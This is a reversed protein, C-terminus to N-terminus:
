RGATLDPRLSQQSYGAAKQMEESQRREEIIQANMAAQALAHLEIASTRVSSQTVTAFLKEISSTFIECRFKGRSIAVYFLEKSMEDASVIVNSVTKGQSAHATSAYGYSFQKFHAPMIRGDRLKKNGASDISLVDVWEGNTFKLDARRNAQIFLREGSCVEIAEKQFVEYAKAHRSTIRVETGNELRGIAANNEFRVLDVAANKPIDKTAKHFVLTQGVHLKSVDKKQATSCNQPSYRECMQGDVLQSSQKALRRVEHTVRDIEEHKPCILLTDAGAKLYAQAVAAPRDLYDVEKFADMALLREFGSIPDDRFAKVAERYEKTQQRLVEKLSRTQLSSHKELVLLADGADVPQIQSTDGSFIIRADAGKALRILQAMPESGVMAAEDILLVTGKLFAQAEPNDLLARITMADEYGVKKLEGVASHTPAVATFGRQNHALQHRLEGLLQTKGVGAAGQISFAFDRNELASHLIEMQADNLPCTLPKLAGLPAYANVGSDIAAIMQKERELSEQTALLRGHRFVKGSAIQVDLATKVHELALKGRGHRLAETLITIDKSVSVHAFTHDIAFQVSRSAEYWLDHEPANMNGQARSSVENLEEKGEPTLRELQDCRVEATSMETLKEPREDAVLVAVENDTPLRGVEKTFKQVSEDRVKSGQSFRDIIDQSVGVIEFGMDRGRKPARNVIEYGLAICQRALSNRYVESLYARSKYIDTAQLAKWREEVEDFTMNGAVCHDHLQPDLRRSSDHSYRAVVINGTVRDENRNFSRVRTAAIRELETLAETVARRHAEILREDGGLIAMISVSKPASFTFDYLNRAKTIIKGNADLRNASQRIRLWEGNAPNFGQRMLEFDEHSLEGSLGLRQAGKGFWHGVVKENESYYDNAELHNKAYGAGDSMARITLM